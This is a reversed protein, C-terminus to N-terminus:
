RRECCIIRNWECKINVAPDPQQRQSHTEHMQYCFWLLNWGSCWRSQDNCKSWWWWSKFELTVWWEQSKGIDVSMRRCQFLLLYWALLIEYGPNKKELTSKYIHPVEYTTVVLFNNSQFTQLNWLLIQKIFLPATKRIGAEKQKQKNQFAHLLQQGWTLVQLAPLTIYFDKTHSVYMAAFPSIPTCISPPSVAIWLLTKNKVQNKCLVFLLLYQLKYIKLFGEKQHVTTPLKVGSQVIATM